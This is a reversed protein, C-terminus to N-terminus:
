SGVGGVHITFILFGLPGCSDPWGLSSWSTWQSGAFCMDLPLIRSMCDQRIQFWLAPGSEQNDVWEGDGSVPMVLDSSCFAGHAAGM